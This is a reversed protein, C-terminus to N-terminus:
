PSPMGYNSNTLYRSTWGINKNIEIIYINDFDNEAIPSISDGSLLEILQPINDTHGIILVDSGSYRKLQDALQTTTDPSYIVMLKNLEDALPKATLQSRKYKSAYIKDIGKNLLLIKLDEARQIGQANLSSTDTNNLKEAHRVIYYKTTCSTFIFLMLSFFLLKLIKSTDNFHM